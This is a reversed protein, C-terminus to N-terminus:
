DGKPPDVHAVFQVSLVARYNDFTGGMAGKKYFFEGGLILADRTMRQVQELHDKLGASTAAISYIGYKVKRILSFDGGVILAYCMAGDLRNAMQVRFFYADNEEDVAWTRDDIENVWNETAYIIEDLESAIKPTWIVDFNERSMPKIEFTM